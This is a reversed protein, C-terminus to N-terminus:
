WGGGAEQKWGGWSMTPMPKDISKLKSVEGSFLTQSLMGLM